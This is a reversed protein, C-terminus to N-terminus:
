KPTAYIHLLGFYRFNQWSESNTPIKSCHNIIFDVPRNVHSGTPKPLYVLKWIDTSRLSNEEICFNGQDIVMLECVNYNWQGWLYESAPPWLIMIKALSAFGLKAM